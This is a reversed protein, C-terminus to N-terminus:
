ISHKAGVAKLKDYYRQLKQNAAASKTKQMEDRIFDLVTKGDTKDRRNLYDAPLKWKIFDDIFSDFKQYAAYKVPSGGNFGLNFCQIDKGYKDWFAQIKKAKEAPPTSSTVCSANYIITEYVYFNDSEADEEQGSRIVDCLGKIDVNNPCGKVKQILKAAPSKDPPCDEQAHSIFPSSVLVLLLLRLVM